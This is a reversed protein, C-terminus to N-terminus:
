YPCKQAEYLRERDGVYRVELAIKKGYARLKRFFAQEDADNNLEICGITGRTSGGHVYFGSRIAPFCVRMRDVTERLAEIRVRHSGWDASEEFEEINGPDIAYQGQPIPGRDKESERASEDALGSFADWSASDSGLWYLRYGDFQLRDNASLSSDAGIPESLPLDSPVQPPPAANAKM